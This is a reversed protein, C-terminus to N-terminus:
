VYIYMCRNQVLLLAWREHKCVAPALPMWVLGKHNQSKKAANDREWTFNPLSTGLLQLWTPTATFSDRVARPTHSINQLQNIILPDLWRFSYYLTSIKIKNFTAFSETSQCFYNMTAWVKLVWNKSFIPLCIYIYLTNHIRFKDPNCCVLFIGM